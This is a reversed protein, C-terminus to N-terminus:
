QVLKAIQGGARVKVLSHSAKQTCGSQLCVDQECNLPKPPLPLGVLFVARSFFEATTDVPSVPVRRMYPGRFNNSEQRQSETGM